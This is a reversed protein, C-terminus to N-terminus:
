ISNINVVCKSKIYPSTLPKIQIQESNLYNAIATQQFVYFATVIFHHVIIGEQLTLILFHLKPILFLSKIIKSYNMLFVLNVIRKREM